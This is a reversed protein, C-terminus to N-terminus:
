KRKVRQTALPKKEAPPRRLTRVAKHRTQQVADYRSKLYAQRESDRMLTELITNGRQRKTLRDGYFGTSDEVVTGVQFYKGAAIKENKRYHRSPDLARRMALLRLDKEVEATREAAPMGFWAPGATDAAGGKGGKGGKARKKEEGRSEKTPLLRLPQEARKSLDRAM